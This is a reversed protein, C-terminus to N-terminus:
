RHLNGRWNTGPTKTGGQNKEETEGRAEAAKKDAAWARSDAQEVARIVDMLEQGKLDFTKALLPVQNSALLLNPHRPAPPPGVTHRPASKDKDSESSTYVMSPPTSTGDPAPGKGQAQSPLGDAHAETPETGTPTQSSSTSTSASAQSSKTTSSTADPAKNESGKEAMVVGRSAYVKDLETSPQEKIMGLKLLQELYHAGRWAKYHSWARWLVYFLPFNPIVPIIAFPFTVPASSGTLALSRELPLWILRISM